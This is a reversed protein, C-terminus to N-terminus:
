PEQAVGGENKLASTSRWPMMEKNMGSCPMTINSVAQRPRTIM